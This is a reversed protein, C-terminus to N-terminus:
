STSYQTHGSGGAPGNANTESHGTLPMASDRASISAPSIWSAAVRAIVRQGSARSYCTIGSVSVRLCSLRAVSERWISSALSRTGTTRATSRSAPMCACSGIGGNTPSHDRTSPNV